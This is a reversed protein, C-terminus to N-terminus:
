LYFRDAMRQFELRPKKNKQILRRMSRRKTKVHKLRDGGTPDWNLIEPDNENILFRRIRKISLEHYYNLEQKSMRYRSNQYAFSVLNQWHKRNGMLIMRDFIRKNTKFTFISPTLNEELISENASHDQSNIYKVLDWYRRDIMSEARIEWFAHGIDAISPYAFLQRPIFHNHAVTDAALHCLYGYVFAMQADTKAVQKLNKAVQWNHCHSKWEVYKKGFLIDASINGFLFDTQYAKLLTFAAAPITPQLSLTQAAFYVHTAPGWAFAIDPFLLM